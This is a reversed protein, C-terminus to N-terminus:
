PLLFEFLTFRILEGIGRCELLMKTGDVFKFRQRGRARISENTGLIFSREICSGPVEKAKATKHDGTEKLYGGDAYSRPEDKEGDM